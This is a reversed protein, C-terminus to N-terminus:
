EKILAEQLIKVASPLNTIVGGIEHNGTDETRQSGDGSRDGSRQYTIQHPPPGGDPRSRAQSSTFCRLWHIRQHETLPGAAV